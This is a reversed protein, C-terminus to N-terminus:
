RSLSAVYELLDALNQNTLGQELGEPMLSWPQLDLSAINIRPLIVTEGTVLRLTITAENSNSLLGVYTDGVVTNAVAVAHESQVEFNPELIASLIKERPWNRHNQLAPGVGTGKAGHCAACRAEFLLRGSSASGPLKTAAAYRKFLDPRRVSLPGLLAVVRANIGPDPYARLYNMQMQTLDSPLIIGQELAAVVDPVRESRSLLATVAPNRVAAPLAQWRQLISRAIRSDSFRGLTTVTAAQTADSQGSGLLLLLLDGTQGFTVPSVGVLKLAPLRLEDVARAAAAVRLAEGYFRQMRGSPDALPLSSNERRLGEGVQYLLDYARVSDASLGAIYNLVANLSAVRGQTGIMMVLRRLFDRGMPTGNFSADDALALFLDGAGDSLSSLVATQIWINDPNQRLIAALVMARDPRGINGVTFALQYRVRISRDAAMSRLQKWLTDSIGIKESLLVAQERVGADPDRLGRLIADENLLDYGDLVHLAQMRSAPSKSASIMTALLPPAAHDRREYLLRAATDRRWADPSELAAVLKPVPLKGPPAEAPQRFANPVIRYIRGRDDGAQRSAVYLVGGPGIVIAVPRFAPDNSVLFETVAPNVNCIMGLGDPRCTVRRIAQGDRDAIFANGAYNTPFVSGRYIVFPNGRELWGPTVANTGPLPPPRVIPVASQPLEFFPNRAVSAHEYMELLLPRRAGCLFTRGVDDFALGSRAVDNVTTLTLARPDFRFESGIVAAPPTGPVTSVAPVADLFGTVGHFCNDLGWRFSGAQAQPKFANTAAHSGFILKRTDSFGRGQSDKLFYIAPTAGVFVGGGYCAIASPWSLKDAFVRSTEFRGDANTNELLRIRGSVPAPGSSSEVVYLKGFEDFAMAVPAHVLNEGALLELRFGPEIQNDAIGSPLIAPAPEASSAARAAAALLVGLLLAVVGHIRGAPLRDIERLGAM